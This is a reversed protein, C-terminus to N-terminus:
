EDESSIQDGFTLVEEIVLPVSCIQPQLGLTRGWAELMCQMGQGTEESFLLLGVVRTKGSQYAKLYSELRLLSATDTLALTLIPHACM